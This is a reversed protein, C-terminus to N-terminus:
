ALDERTAPNGGAHDATSRTGRNYGIRPARGLVSGSPDPRGDGAVGMSGAGRMRTTVFDM